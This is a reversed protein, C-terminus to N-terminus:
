YPQLYEMGLDVLYAHLHDLMKSHNLDFTKRVFRENLNAVYLNILQTSASIADLCSEGVRNTYETQFEAFKEITQELLNIEADAVDGPLNLQENIKWAFLPRLTTAQLSITLEGADIEM